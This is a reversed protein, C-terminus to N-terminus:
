HIDESILSDEEIVAGKGIKINDRVVANSKVYSYPGINNNKGIDSDIIISSNIRTGEGVKSNIIQCFPGIVSNKRITTQGKIFCCPEIIVDREIIASSEIYCSQPNRITVGNKMFNENIRGQMISEVSSLQQRNNIGMVEEYDSIKLCSVKKGDRVLMEIIDTLYHEKQNNVTGIKDINEFLIETEFCYISSNVETIKREEFNADADEVIKTISGKKDKIIRGYGKPDPVSTTIIGAKSKTRVTNELLKKIVITSILPTDASLVLTYRGLSNKKDKATYVAHATGLQNEQVLIGAEPFNSKTYDIIPERKYGTVIFINKPSLKKITSLVYYVIPRGLLKHLVKPIESKMRRGKGAALVIVSLDESLNM